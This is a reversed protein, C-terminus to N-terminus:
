YHTIDKPVCYLALALSRKVKREAFFTGASSSSSFTQIFDQKLAESIYEIAAKSPSLWPPVM